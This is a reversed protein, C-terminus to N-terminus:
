DTEFEVLFGNKRVNAPPLDLQIIDFDSIDLAKRVDNQWDDQGVAMASLWLSRPEGSAPGGFGASVCAAVATTLLFVRM